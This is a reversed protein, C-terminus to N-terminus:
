PLVALGLVCYGEEIGFQDGPLVYTILRWCKRGSYGNRDDWERLLLTDGRQFDRDDRRVEFPKSGLMVDPFYGPWCKLEHEVRERVRAGYLEDRVKGAGHSEDGAM